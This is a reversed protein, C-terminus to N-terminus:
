WIQLLNIATTGTARVRTVRIPLIGVPAATFLVSNEGGALDVTLDGAAGVYIGESIGPAPLDAVDSPVIATAHQYEGRFPNPLNTNATM